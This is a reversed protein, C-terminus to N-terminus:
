CLQFRLVLCRTIDSRAEKSGYYWAGNLAVTDLQPPRDM